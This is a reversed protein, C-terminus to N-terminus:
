KKKYGNRITEEVSYGTTVKGCKENVKRAKCLGKM